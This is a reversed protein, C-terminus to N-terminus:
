PSFSRGLQPAPQLAFRKSRNPQETVLTRQQPRRQRLNLWWTMIREHFRRSRRQTQRPTPTSAMQPKLTQGSAITTTGTALLETASLQRGDREIARRVRAKDDVYIKVDESGRSATVYFQRLNIAPLSDSGMAAIAVQRDKGQSSHSTLVYGYDLHGYDKAVTLGSKLLLNGARDFGKVQDLRGNSIRRKGDAGTGGLTFRVQDGKALELKAPDYVEFRDAFELPLPKPKSSPSSKLQLEGKSTRYVRYRSGKIFGGRANQHFQVVMGTAYTSRNGKEAESLNLSHLRDFSRTKEALTGQNRLESRISETVARGEAHTPAIVLATKKDSLTKVYQKALIEVREESKIEHIKGMRDLLDFGALLATQGTEQDVVQEGQSILKVAEQYLGKQRQITEVRAISLGSEKELLALAEGRRPSAHQRSDGSLIVRANQKSAVDFIARMSGVDLLGAEDIWLVQDRLEPHLSTNRILHEVTRAKDFGKERLVDRAGTSPAFTFVEKGGAGVAETAEMMLSSKGTGAGGTVAMVTDRCNLVHQVAAKQQDNLWERKFTHDPKGLRVRMGRGDRVFSIISREADLVEPTTIWHRTTGNVHTTQTIIDLKSLEAEILEPSRALSHELATSVVQHKEVTSQRYLHHELAFRVSQEAQNREQVLDLKPPSTNKISAFQFRELKNLRDQWQQRLADIGLEKVKKQRTRKGLKAKQKPDSIGHTKAYEEVIGTRASFKEITTRDIGKIEWGRKLKGSQRYQTSEVQYGLENQLHRALRSEFKAQLSPRQRMIEAFEGAYHTGNEETWNIVFAHVHLHPDVQNEVPRSTKHLFDAFILKGTQQQERSNVKKGTRVRRHMLPEVDKEMTERVILRLAKLIREDKNIAWALSVSKPVSFTLDVGPRRDKRKRQTLQRKTQPHKGSLLAKFEERTVEQGEKLGLLSAGKGYWHGPIEQNLYYDGQTLVTDFYKLTGDASSAQTALLM